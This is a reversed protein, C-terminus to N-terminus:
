TSRSARDALGTKTRGLSSPLPGVGTAERTLTATAVTATDADDLRFIDSRGNDCDYRDFVLTDTGDANTHVNM